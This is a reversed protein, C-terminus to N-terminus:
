EKLVGAARDAFAKLAQSISAGTLLVAARSGMRLTDDVADYHRSLARLKEGAALLADALRRVDDATATDKRPASYLPPKSPRFHFGNAM